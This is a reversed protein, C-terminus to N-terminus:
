KEPGMFPFLIVEKISSQNTLLMVLRDIGIGQGGTPPMGYELARLFDEDIAELWKEDAKARSKVQEELFKRQLLPDNLESYANGIEMGCAFPEFREVLHPYKRHLKCLPTTECPHHMIITPQIITKDFSEFIANILEGATSVRDVVIKKEVCYKKLESDSMKEVDLKLYKKIADAMTLREWKGLDLKHGQWEIKTTGLVKKCVYKVLEEFLDMIHNFDYYAIYYELQTFEPNHRVDISENRFDKAFEYVREFGGAILRKLYLENSTRLYVDMKLDNMFTKFPKAAAGGYIPQLIPTEVELFNKENLFARIADVIKTRTIFIEKVKPNMILDVYRQRYRIEADKLGYWQSPLPRPSKTLVVLKSAKVSVEGRKTKAAKGEVGVFDGAELYKLLDYDKGLADQALWLQIDGSGDRLDCFALKGHERITMLRGAVNVKKGDLKAFDSIIEAAHHTQNFSYPYPEINAKKMANLKELRETDVMM